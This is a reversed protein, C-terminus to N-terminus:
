LAGETTIGFSLNCSVIFLKGWIIKRGKCNLFIEGKLTPAFIKRKLKGGQQSFKGFVPPQACVLPRRVYNVFGPPQAYDFGFWFKEVGGLENQM